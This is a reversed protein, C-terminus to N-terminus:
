SSVFNAYTLNCAKMTFTYTREIPYVYPGSVCNIVFYMHCRRGLPMPLPARFPLVEVTSAMRSKGWKNRVISFLKWTEVPVRLWGVCLAGILWRHLRNKVVPLTPRWILHTMFTTINLYHTNSDTKTSLLYITTRM